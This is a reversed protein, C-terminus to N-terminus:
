INEEDKIDNIRKNIEDLILNYKKAVINYKRYMENYKTNDRHENIKVLKAVYEMYKETMQFLANLETLTLEQLNM